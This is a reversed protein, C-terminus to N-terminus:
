ADLGEEHMLKEHLVRAALSKSQEDGDITAKFMLRGAEHFVVIGEPGKDGPNLDKIYREGNVTAAVSGRAALQALVVDPAFRIVGPTMKGEADRQPYIDTADRGGVVAMWPGHYLVPVVQVGISALAMVSPDNSWRTYNFLSFWKRPQNYGRQIGQGWWEGFHVGPGLVERLAQANEEVWKAFGFNDESTTLLRTRSQPVTIGIEDPNNEDVKYAHVGDDNLWRGTIHICANTGDIKETITIDRNLRPIKPFPIFEVGHAAAVAVATAYRDTKAAAQLAKEAKRNPDSM